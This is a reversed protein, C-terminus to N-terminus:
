TSFFILCFSRSPYPYNGMALTAWPDQVWAVLALAESEANIPSCTRFLKSLQARGSASSGLL